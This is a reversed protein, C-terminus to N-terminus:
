VCDQDHEVWDIYCAIRCDSQITRRDLSSTVTIRGFKVNGHDVAVFVIVLPSFTYPNYSNGLRRAVLRPRM